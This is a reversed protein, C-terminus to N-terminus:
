KGRRGKAGQPPAKLLQAVSPTRAATAATTAATAAAAAAQSEASKRLLADFDRTVERTGTHWFYIKGGLDYAVRWDSPVDGRLLPDNNLSSSLLSVFGHRQSAQQWESFPNSFEFRGTKVAALPLEGVSRSEQELWRVLIAVHEKAAASLLLGPEAAAAADGAQQSQPRPLSPPARGTLATMLAHDDDDFIFKFLTGALTQEREAPDAVAGTIFDLELFFNLTATQVNKLHKNVSMEPVGLLRLRASTDEWFRDFLLEDYEQEERRMPAVKGEVQAPEREKALRHHILWTHLAVTAQKARFTTGTRGLLPWRPDLGAVRAREFAYNAWLSLLHRHTYRGGLMDVFTRQPRDLEMDKPDEIAVDPLEDAGEASPYPLQPKAQPRAQPKAQSAKAGGGAATAATAAAAAAASARAAAAPPANQLMRVLRGHSVM